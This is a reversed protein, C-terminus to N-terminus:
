NLGSHSVIEGLALAFFGPVDQWDSNEFEQWQDDLDHFDYEDNLYQVGEKTLMELSIKTVEVDLHWSGNYNTFHIYKIDNRFCDDITGNFLDDDIHKMYFNKKEKDFFMSEFRPSQTRIEVKKTGNLIEIANEKRMILNYAEVEKGKVSIKM